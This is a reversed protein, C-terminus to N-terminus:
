RAEERAPRNRVDALYSVAPRVNLEGLVEYARNREVLKSVASEPDNLDGFVIAGAPCSQQCATQIAGDTLPVGTRKAHTKADQIRQVCLSCKEMVGRTRVTVDPNLALNQLADERPYEFWNFRRTKYPCNNACYRTGVCRNYVQQNLGEESHVTALVPCVTECPANACHQCMMPQQSASLGDGEGDYYRDIRIWQMERHRLVEDRGVVPVNNEAQCAVVCGSCGTCAGLDVAMAWKHQPTPHDAPWIDHAAGHRTEREATAVEAVAFTRVADRVAGGKPALHAPVHLSHHEQTCALERRAGTKVVRVSRASALPAANRGVTDGAAVTPRSELWQPGIKTFRDTGKRGYGLAVAVVGDHQGPQVLAPLEVPPVGDATVRVVDGTAVGLSKATEPSLCAYNDWVCKSVPDPIEQLWANHAQSGDRLAVKPYLVLALEGAGPASRAAPARVASARFSPREAAASTVVFGDRLCRDFADDSQARWHDRVLERDDRVDGCWRALCERLTRGGRLPRIAPQTFSVVGAAPEADNWSELAHLEPLVVSALDCTEDFLPALVVVTGAKAAAEAFRADEPLDYAPNCGAVVLVGVAGGRMEELLARVAADDGRAANSPSALDLTTGYNGLRENIANVLSQAGADADDCVVLSAGRAASLEAALERVWPRSAADGGLAAHLEALADATEWPALRVRRDARLGTMSTRAEIQWHKSSAIAGPALARGSRWQATFEVPSIWTGLFDAGFSAIVRARDFRYRPVARVGHTERHADAIASASIADYAVHKAGHRKQFEAIWARTSPSHVTGTLLRVRGKAADLKARVAADATDWSAKAGAALPAALRKSDYLSLVQAQGVACLGGASIPHGPLGELKVPRGDVCKALVGCAAACGGCTTAIWYARGAPLGETGALRSVISRVPARSCASLTAAAVGFGAARLFSRRSVGSREVPLVVRDSRKSM